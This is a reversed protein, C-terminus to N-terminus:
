FMTIWSIRSVIFTGCNLTANRDLIDNYQNNLQVPQLYIKYIFQTNYLIIYM